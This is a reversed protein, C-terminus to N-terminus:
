KLVRTDLGERQPPSEQGRVPLKERTRWVAPESITQRCCSSNWNLETHTHPPPAAAVCCAPTEQLCTEAEQSYAPLLELSDNKKKQLNGSLVLLAWFEFLEVLKHNIKSM